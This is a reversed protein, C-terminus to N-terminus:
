RGFIVGVEIRFPKREGFRMYQTLRSRLTAKSNASGAKGIYASKGGM